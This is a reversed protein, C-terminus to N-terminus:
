KTVIVNMKNIKPVLIWVDNRTFQNLDEKMTTIWHNDSLAEHISKPEIQSVFAM